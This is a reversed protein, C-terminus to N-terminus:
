RTCLDEHIILSNFSLHAFQEVIKMYIIQYLDILNHARWQFELLPFLM